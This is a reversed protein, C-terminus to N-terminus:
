INASDIHYKSTPVTRDIHYKSTPV